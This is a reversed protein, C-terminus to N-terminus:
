FYTVWSLVRKGPTKRHKRISLPHVSKGYDWRRQLHMLSIFPSVLLLIFDAFALNFLYINTPKRLKAHRILIYFVIGSFVKHHAHRTVALGNGILGLGAIILFAGVMCNYFNQGDQGQPPEDLAKQCLPEALYQLLPKETRFIKCIRFRYRQVGSIMGSITGSISTDM